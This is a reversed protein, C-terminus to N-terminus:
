RKTLPLFLMYNSVTRQSQIVTVQVSTTATSGLSDVTTLTITHPGATLDKELLQGTGLPGDKDSTWSLRDDPLSGDELDMGNGELVVASGTYFTAGSSPSLISATPAKNAISFPSNSSDEASYFGDSCIVKIMGSAGTTGPLASFDIAASTGSIGTRLPEWSTGNDHSYLVACILTSSSDLDSATWTITQQGSLTLGTSSPYTVTVTPPNSSAVQQSLVKGAVMDRLRIKQLNAPAPVVMSFAQGAVSTDSDDTSDGNFCHQDLVTNASNLLNVCYQSGESPTSPTASALHIIPDLTGTVPTSFNLTGTIVLYDSAQPQISSGDTTQPSGAGGASCMQNYLSLYNAPSIWAEEELRAPVMVDLLDDGGVSAPVPKIARDYVDFWHAGQTTTPAAIDPHLFGFNHGVEHAFTRRWRNPSETDDGFAVVGPRYGLGNHVYALSPLWAFYHDFTKNFGLDMIEDEADLLAVDNGTANVDLDFDLPSSRLYLLKNEPIPYIKQMFIQGNNINSSPTSTGGGPPSYRVPSFAIRLGTCSKTAVDVSRENNSYDSEEVTRDPNVQVTLNLDAQQTWAYPLEFNLTDDINKWNPSSPATIEQNPNFPKIEGLDAGGATGKLIATVNKVAEHQAGTDIFARVVTRRGRVLPIGNGEEQLGQTVEIQKVTLDNAKLLAARVDVTWRISMTNFEGIGGIPGDCGEDFQNGVHHLTFVTGEANGQLTADFCANELYTNENSVGTTDAVNGDCDVSHYHDAVNYIMSGGPQDFRATWTGTDKDQEPLISWLGSPKGNYQAPDQTTEYDHWIEDFSGSSCILRRVSDFDDSVLLTFNSNDSSGDEYINYLTSGSESFNYTGSSYSTSNSEHGSIQQTASWTIQWVQVPTQHPTGLSSMREQAEGGFGIPIAAALSARSPNLFATALILGLIIRIWNFHKSLM